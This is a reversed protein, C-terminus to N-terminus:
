FAFVPGVSPAVVVAFTPVMFMIKLEANIGFNPTIGYTAGGGASIFGLGSIQYADLPRPTAEVTRSCSDDGDLVDTTGDKELSDCVTVPVSASVKGAGGGVFAYPRIKGQEFMSGGFAFYGRAEFHIPPFPVMLAHLSNPVTETSEPHGGFAIGLKAGVGLTGPGLGVLERDYSAFVRAGGPAFGGQVGNTGTASIPAGFFRNETGEYFCYYSLNTGSCVNEATSILMLDLQAGVGIINKKGISAAGGGGSGGEGDRKGEECQGNQCILGAQCEQDADCTSGWGKEGRKEGKGSPCGPLGPPCNAPDECQAPPKKGPYSPEDGEIERKIAVRHPEKQSGAKLQEGGEDTVVIYYKVDGTARTDECPIMGGWGKGIRNMEVTNWKTAGFPKYKLSVKAVTVEEPVEIYIPVPTNIAQEAPPTHELDGGASAPPKEGGGGEGGEGDEPDKEPPKPPKAAAKAIEKAKEFAKALEPTTYSDNLKATPDAKLALVFEDKAADVNQRGGGAVTGLAIHLKGLVAPSCNSDGCKKLADKLKKEAKDLELNLYDEDLAADHLKMADKDKEGAALASSTFGTFGGFVATSLALAVISGFPRLNM